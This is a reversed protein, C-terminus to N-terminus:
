GYQTDVNQLSIRFMTRRFHAASNQHITEILKKIPWLEPLCPEWATNFTNFFYQMEFNMKLVKFFYANFFYPFELHFLFWFYRLLIKIYAFYKM